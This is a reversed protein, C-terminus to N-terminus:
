MVIVIVGFAKELEDLALINKKLNFSDKLARDLSFTHIAINFGNFKLGVRPFYFIYRMSLLSLSINFFLAQCFCSVVKSVKMPLTM